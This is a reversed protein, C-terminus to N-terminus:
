AVKRHFWELRISLETGLWILALGTLADKVFELWVHDALGVKDLILKLILGMGGFILIGLVTRAIKQFISGSSEPLGKRALLLFGLGLGFMFALLLYIKEPLILMFLFPPILLIGTMANLGIEYQDKALFAALRDPKLVLFYFGALILAGLTVGGFVDAM